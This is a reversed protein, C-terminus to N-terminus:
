SDKSFPEFTNQKVWSLGSTQSNNLDPESESMFEPEFIHRRAARMVEAHWEGLKVSHSDSPDPNLVVQLCSTISEQVRGRYKDPDSTYLRAAEGNLTHATDISYFINRAYLFLNRLHNVDRRWRQFEKKTDLEGTEAHVLPHFVGAQFDFAPCGGDPYNMPISLTFKFVAGQYMGTRVFMLGYWILPSDDSPLM